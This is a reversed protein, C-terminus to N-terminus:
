QNILSDGSNLVQKKADIWLAAHPEESGSDSNIYIFVPGLVKKWAEGEKFELGTLTDGAYHRSYFM